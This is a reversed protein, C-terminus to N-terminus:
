NATYELFYVILEDDSDSFDLKSKLKLYAQNVAEFEAASGGRDPHAKVAAKKYAAKVSAPTVAGKIGLQAAPSDLALAKLYEKVHRRYLADGVKPENRSGASLKKRLTVPLTQLVNDGLAKRVSEDGGALDAQLKAAKSEYTAAIDDFAKRAVELRSDPENLVSERIKNMRDAAKQGGLDYETREKEIKAKQEPTTKPDNLKKELKKKDADSRMDFDAPTWEERNLHAERERIQTARAWSEKDNVAKIYEPVDDMTATSQSHGLQMMANPMALQEATAQAAIRGDIWADVDARSPNVSAYKSNLEDIASQPTQSSPEEVKPTVTIKSKAADAKAAIAEKEADSVEPKLSAKFDSMAKDAGEGGAKVSKVIERYQQKQAPNM